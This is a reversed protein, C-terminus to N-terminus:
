PILERQQEIRRRLTDFSFIRSNTQYPDRFEKGDLFAYENCNYIYLEATDTFRATVFTALWEPVVPTRTGGWGTAWELMELVAVRITEHRICHNYQKSLAANVNEYGPENRLPESNLLSQISLLVSGITQVPSWGPGSWTGLISCCVKGCEYLNPNFRVHGGGTTQLTVKPSQFPYDPPFTLIFYFFGAEYPTDQPGVIIAHCRDFKVEDQVVVIGELPNRLLEKLDSQIRVMCSRSPSLPLAAATDVSIPAEEVLAAIAKDVDPDDADDGMNRTAKKGDHTPSKSPPNAVVQTALALKSPAFSHLFFFSALRAHIRRM